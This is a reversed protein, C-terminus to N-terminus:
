DFHKTLGADDVCVGLRADPYRWALHALRHLKREGVIENAILVNEIGRSLSIEAEGPKQCCIGVSGAAIQRRAIEACQHIDAHPRVRINYSAATERMRELNAEFRDLDIILAPTDVDQLRDGPAAPMWNSRM